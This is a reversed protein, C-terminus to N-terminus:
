HATVTCQLDAPCDSTDTKGAPATSGTSADSVFQQIFPLIDDVRTFNTASHCDDAGYSTLGVLQGNLIVPGGSDGHCGGLGDEGGVFEHDSVDTVQVDVTRKEGSGDDNSDGANQADVNSVGYGVMTVTSGVDPANGLPMADADIDQDLIVISVDQGAGPTGDYAPNPTITATIFGPANPDGSMDVDTGLTFDVSTILPQTPDDNEYACHGATIVVRPAILTGTCFGFGQSPDSSFLRIFGVNSHGNDTTGGVIKSTTASSSEATSATPQACGTVLAIACGLGLLLKAHM